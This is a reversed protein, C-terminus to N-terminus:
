AIEPQGLPSEEEVKTRLAQFGAGLSALYLAPAFGLWGVIPLVCGVILFGAGRSFAAYHNMEPAMKQLREGASLSLGAMGLSAVSFLGLLLAWGFLKVPPSPVIALLFGILGVTLLLLVGRGICKWPRAVIERQAVASKAPFLLGYAMTLAWASLCTGILTAVFAMVDGQIM